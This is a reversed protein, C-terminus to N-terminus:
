NPIKLSGVTKRMGCRDIWTQPLVNVSVNPPVMYFAMTRYSWAYPTCNKLAATHLFFQFERPAESISKFFSHEEVADAGFANVAHRRVGDAYLGVVATPLLVALVTFMTLRLIKPIVNNVPRVFVLAAAAVGTAVALPWYPPGFHDFLLTAFCIPQLPDGFLLSTLTVYALVALLVGYNHEGNEILTKVKGQAKGLM